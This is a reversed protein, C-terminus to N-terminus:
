ALLTAVTALDMKVVAATVNTMNIPKKAALCRTRCADYGISCSAFPVSVMMSPFSAGGFHHERLTPPGLSLGQETHSVFGDDNVEEFMVKTTSIM